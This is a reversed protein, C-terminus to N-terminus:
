PHNASMEDGPSTVIQIGLVKDIAVTAPCGTRRMYSHVEDIKTDVLFRYWFGQLFHFATGSKGDLFGLAIFYRYFFYAFARFGHPLHAYIREKLWRKFAVQSGSSLSAVPDHVTFGYKLNLLDVAERSSYWNHKSIWWAVPNLNHDIIDGRFDATAGDVIIHEDMWREECRGRGRRWLRLVRIPYVAGHRIMTGLFIMRRNCYVGAINADLRPLQSRIEGGLEPTIYEDGDIRLLWDVDDPIQAIAWNLQSAYNGFHHQIVRCGMSGAIEPTGDSSYSDVVLVERTVPWLSKLCRRIHQEENFTLIIAAIKM